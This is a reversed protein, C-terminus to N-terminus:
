VSDRLNNFLALPVGTALLLPAAGLALPWALFPIARWQREATSLTTVEPGRSPLPVEM